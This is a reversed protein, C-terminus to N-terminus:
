EDNKMRSNIWNSMDSLVKPDITIEIQEYESVAGTTAPQFLHNLGPYVKVTVDGGADRIATDISTLETEAPVQVDLSGNIAYVPMDLRQLTPVPDFALFWKLWPIDAQAMADDIFAEDVEMDLGAASIQMVCLERMPERIDEKPAGEMIMRMVLAHQKVVKDILEPDVHATQMLARNQDPLLEIGPRGPGAMLVVFAIDDRQDAVIPGVLGGESHGILGIRAPDIEPQLKLHDVLVSTDSAFDLTTVDRLSAPDPVVSGGVGRDDARLVAIGNRTLHDSLVLFPKHGMIEENRDQSGSGTILLAVPHPGDGEPITL